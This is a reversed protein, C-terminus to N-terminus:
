FRQDYGLKKYEQWTDAIAQKFPTYSWGLQRIAKESSFNWELAIMEFFEPPFLSKGTLLRSVKAVAQLIPLPVRRTPPRKGLVEAVAEWIQVFTLVEGGLIYDDGPQGRQHALIIGRATDNYYSLTLPNKGSGLIAVPKGSAMRLLTQDQMSPHSSARSCGFGFSPYVISVKLGRRAYERALEDAAHKTKQYLSIYKGPDVPRTEDATEGPRTPGLVSISSVQVMSEIGLDLAAQLVAQTGDRNVKWWTAEPVNHGVIAALHSVRQCGAMGRRVSEADTVDGDVFVVGPLEIGSRDSNPRVLVKVEEGQRALEKVLM